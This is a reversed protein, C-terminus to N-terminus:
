EHPWRTLLLVLDTILSQVQGRDSVTFGQENRWKSEHDEHAGWLYAVAPQGTTHRSRVLRAGCCNVPTGTTELPIPDPDPSGM